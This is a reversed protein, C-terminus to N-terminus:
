MDLLGFSMGIVALYRWIPSEEQSLRYGSILVGLVVVAMLIFIILVPVAGSGRSSSTRFRFRRMTTEAIDANM